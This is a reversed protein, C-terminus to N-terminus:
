SGFKLSGINIVEKNSTVRLNITKKQQNPRGFDTYLDARIAIPGGLTQRHDGYLNVEVLYNGNKAKKLSFEEPGYGQIVDASLKGGIITEKHQYYCKEKVPDTVWLDIDSNDTNWGVVIRVDVPMAYIFRPDITSVHISGAQASIIANLENLAIAKVDGFRSDWTGLILKNLLELAEDYRGTENCAQALDRYSQPEEERIKLVERFTEVALEKEGADLLQNAVLRLLEANELKMECINSLVLIAAQKDGHELFFRAVDAFFSPQDPYQKKLARYKNIREAPATKELFDLYPADPKWANLEISSKITTAEEQRDDFRDPSGDADTSFSFGDAVTLRNAVVGDEHEPLLMLRASANGAGVASSDSYNGQIELNEYEVQYQMANGAANAAVVSDVMRISDAIALTIDNTIRSKRKSYDTNWWEKLQTMAALAENLAVDKEDQKTKQKEQLLAVYEKQLEAPPTIEYQVYDEVRDLVLLSTHQTVISFTKGLRTIAEKNKEYELDLRDITIGAWIRKVQDYDSEKSKSLTFTKTMTVENGFGLEAKVVASATKLKGAFSLGNRLVPTTQVAIAEIAAPDYLLRILQLSQGQLQYLATATEQKGLDIFSGHTQQAIFKLYAYNASPSTTITTVPTHSLHMEQRGFTSLGDSFLLIEDFHYAALDIAGFQTGGDYVLDDMRNLLAAADGNHIIFDEQPLAQIHFPILSVKVNDLGALWAKLLATEKVRDRGEGSASVDWFIGISAPKNKKNFQPEVKSNVYFWSHDGANETLVVDENGGTGPIAFAITQDARFRSQHHEAVFANKWEKFRFNTLTNPELEPMETSKLVTTKLSFTDILEKAYLPLQYLLDKGQQDLTQEIAIVVRKYGKAPIPYIRTRFNNGKTKEVLGPDISRRVTNEFAVRAKAKEVVVGERLAGNIDLAYRTIHQGDALPFEFEGELVRNNPNYFSIDFTTTAINAAITVDISLSSLKPATATTDNTIRLAPIASSVQPYRHAKKVQACSFLLWAALLGSLVIRTM